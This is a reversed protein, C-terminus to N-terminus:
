HSSTSRRLDALVRAFGGRPITEREGDHVGPPLDPSDLAEMFRQSGGRGIKTRSRHLSANRVQVSRNTAVFSYEDYFDSDIGIAEALRMMVGRPDQRMEELLLVHVRRSGFHETWKPLFEVYSSQEIENMLLDPPAAVAREIRERSANQFLDIFEAFTISERFFAQNNLKYRYDSYIREAPERLVFIIQPESPLTSLVQLATQQYLYHTTAELVIKREAPVAAFFEEYASLGHEHYNAEARAMSHGHDMLFFTEKVNSTAVQPHDALWRFLSTTGCKPAGGIVLNPFAM